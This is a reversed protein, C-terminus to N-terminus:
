ALLTGQDLLAQAAIQLLRLEEIIAALEIQAAGVKDEAAPVQGSLYRLRLFAARAYTVAEDWSGFHPAPLEVTPPEVFPVVDGAAAVTPPGVDATM